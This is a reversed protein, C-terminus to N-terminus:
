IAPAVIFINCVCVCVRAVKIYIFMSPLIDQGQYEDGSTVYIIWWWLESGRRMNTKTEKIKETLYKM